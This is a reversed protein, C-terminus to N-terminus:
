ESYDMKEHTIEKPCEGGVSSQRFAAAEEKLLNDIWHLYVKENIAHTSRLQVIIERAFHYKNEEMRKSKKEKKYDSKMVPALEQWCDSCFPNCDDDEHILEDKIKAECSTCKTSM